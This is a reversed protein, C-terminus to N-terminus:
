DASNLTSSGAYGGDMYIRIENAPPNQASAILPLVLVLCLTLFLGKKM